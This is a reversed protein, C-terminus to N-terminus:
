AGPHECLEVLVGGLRGVFAIRTGGVGPQIPADSGLRRLAAELDDVRFALHHVGGGTSRLFEANIGEGTLPQIFEVMADGAPLCAIRLLGPGYDEWAVGAGLPAYESAAAAADTVVVGVHDLRLDTGAEGELNRGGPGAEQGCVPCRGAELRQARLELPAGAAGIRRGARLGVRRGAGFALALLAVGAALELM